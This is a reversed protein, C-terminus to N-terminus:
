LFKSIDLTNELDCLRSDMALRVDESALNLKELELLIANQADEPLTCIFATKEM